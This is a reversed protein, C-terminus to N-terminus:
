FLVELISRIKRETEVRDFMGDTALKKLSVADMKAEPIADDNDLLAIAVGSGVTQKLEYTKEVSQLAWDIRHSLKAIRRRLPEGNVSIRKLAELDASIAIVSEAVEESYREDGTSLYARQNMNLRDLSDLMSDVTEVVILGGTVSNTVKTLTHNLVFRFCISLCITAAALACAWRVIKSDEASILDMGLDKALLRPRNSWTRSWKLFLPPRLEILAFSWDDGYGAARLRETV